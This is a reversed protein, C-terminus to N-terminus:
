AFVGQMFWAAGPEGALRTQFVWLVGGTESWAVWYDRATAQSVVAVAPQGEAGKCGEAGEGGEAGTPEHLRHWWGGEVRHPGLMLVLPRGQHLPRHNRTGLRVPQPLLFAPQPLGAQSTPFATPAMPERRRAASGSESLPWWCQMWEPRHDECRRLGGVRDAGLRAAVQELVDDLAQSQQQADPWLTGSPLALSQVEDARLSLAAAPARLTTRALHEALLGALHAIERTPRATRLALCETASISRARMSDYEWILSFALVGAHRAQLWGCLRELLCLVGDMLAPAQAVRGPLEIRSTFTEPTEVWLHAEPLLGYARDLTQLLTADFRRSVGERPLRRVDGLAHCGMLALTPAFPRLPGLTDLPLPDLAPALPHDLGPVAVPRDSTMGAAASLEARALALAALSTTAWGVARAGGRLAGGSVRHMLAVRGGFLRQSAALELLVADELLAVRPTFQLGWM